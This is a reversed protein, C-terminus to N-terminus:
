IGQDRDQDLNAELGEGEEKLLNTGEIKATEQGLLKLFFKYWHGSQHCHFCEDEDAATRKRGGGRNDVLEV